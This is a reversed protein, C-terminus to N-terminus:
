RCLSGDLQDSTKRRLSEPDCFEMMVQRCIGCPPNVGDCVLANTIKDALTHKGSGEPGEILYAHFLHANLITKIPENGYFDTFNM